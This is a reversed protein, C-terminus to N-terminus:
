ASIVILKMWNLVVVCEIVVQQYSGHIIPLTWYMASEGGLAMRFDLLKFFNPIALFLSFCDVYWQNPLSEM